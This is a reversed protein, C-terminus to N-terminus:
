QAQPAQTAGTQRVGFTLTIKGCRVQDGPMLLRKEGLRVMGENLYAPNHDALSEIYFQGRDETLRAHYRSVSKAGEFGALNVALAEASQPNTPDPRGIIAPQFKVDFMTGTSDERFFPRTAGGLAARQAPSGVKAQQRIQARREKVLVLAAGTKLGQQELTKDLELVKGSEQVRLTYLGDEPLNFEQKTEAVLTRVPLNERISAEQQPNDFQDSTITIIMRAM